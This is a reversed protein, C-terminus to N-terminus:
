SSHEAARPESAEVGAIFDTLLRNVADPVEVTVLHGAYPLEVLRAGPITAAIKRSHSPPLTRDHEGVVVLTPVRICAIQDLISRSELVIARTTWEIGRPDMERLRRMEKEVIDPRARLTTDGFM